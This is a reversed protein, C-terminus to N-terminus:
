GEGLIRWPRVEELLFYEAESRLRARELGEPLELSTGDRLYALISRFTTGDRDIIYAGNADQEPLLFHGSAAHDTSKPTDRLLPSFMVAIMSGPQRTLTAVSTTFKLGGVNLHVHKRADSHAMQISQNHLPEWSDTEGLNQSPLSSVGRFWAVSHDSDCM